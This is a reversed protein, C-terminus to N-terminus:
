AASGSPSQAHSLAATTQPQLPRAPAAGARSRKEAVELRCCSQSHRGPLAGPGQLLQLVCGWPLLSLGGGSGAEDGEWGEGDGQGASPSGGQEARRGPFAGM